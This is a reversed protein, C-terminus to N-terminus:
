KDEKRDKLLNKLHDDRDKAIERLEERRQKLEKAKEQYKKLARRELIQELNPTEKDMQKITYRDPRRDFDTQPPNYAHFAYAFVLVAGIAITYWYMPKCKEITLQNATTFERKIIRYVVYGVVWAFIAYAWYLSGVFDIFM